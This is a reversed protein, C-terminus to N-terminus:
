SAGHLRFCEPLISFFLLHDMILQNTTGLTTGEHQFKHNNADIEYKPQLEGAAGVFNDSM